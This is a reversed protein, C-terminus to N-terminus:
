AKCTDGEGGSGGTSSMNALRVRMDRELTAIREGMERRTIDKEWEIGDIREWVEKEMIDKEREVGAICERMERQMIDKEKELTAIREGMERRMIDKEMELKSIREGMERRFIDTETEKVVMELEMLIKGNEINSMRKNMKRRMEAVDKKVGVVTSTV